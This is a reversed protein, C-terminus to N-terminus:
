RPSLLHSQRVAITQQVPITHENGRLKELLVAQENHRRTSVIKISLPPQSATTWSNWWEQPSKLGPTGIGLKESLWRATAPAEELWTELDIADYAEVSAWDGEARRETLWAEKGNWRRPTVFLYGTTQRDPQPTEGTRKIYDADAKARPDQNCGMEWVSRGAPIWTTADECEAQGDLGSLDVAENGPFRLSVLSSTTERILRRVLIPLNSRCEHRDAWQRIATEDITM